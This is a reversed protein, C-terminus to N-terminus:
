YPLKGFFGDSSSKRAQRRLVSILKSVTLNEGIFKAGNLIWKVREECSVINSAVSFRECPVLADDEIAYYEIIFTDDYRTENTNRKVLIINEDQIYAKGTNGSNIISMM